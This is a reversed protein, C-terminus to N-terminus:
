ASLNQAHQALGTVVGTAPDTFTYNGDAGVYVPWGHTEGGSEDIYAPVTPEVVPMVPEPAPEPFGGDFQAYVDNIIQEVNPQTIVPQTRALGTRDGAEFGPDSAILLKRSISGDEEAFPFMYGIMDIYFPLRVYLQGQVYPVWKDDKHNTMAILIVATLPNTPHTTLDRFQRVLSSMKRLVDGWDQTRMQNIGAIGDICRQQVESVSDMVVSKFSHQGTELYHHAMELSQYDRVIVVCTEWTGDYTPPPGEVPNWYTKRSALFRSGGEADLILRPAPSTDGLTSKGVKSPGHVLLSLTKGDHSM